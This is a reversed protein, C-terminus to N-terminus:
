GRSGRSEDQMPSSKVNRNRDTPSFGFLKPFRAFPRALLFVFSIKIEHAFSTPRKQVGEVSSSVTVYMKHYETIKGDDGAADVRVLDSSSRRCCDNWALRVRSRM